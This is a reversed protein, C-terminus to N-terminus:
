RPSAPSQPVVTTEIARGAEKWGRYGGFLSYVQRYGMRLLSEAALASRYGGGCYLVLPTELDSCLQEIDRELIGRGLHRAGPIHGAQWEHDERVDLLQLPSNATASFKQRALLEEQSMETIRARAEECLRLFRPSHQMRFFYKMKDAASMRLSAPIPHEGDSAPLRNLLKYRSNTSYFYFSPRPLGSGALDSRYKNVM